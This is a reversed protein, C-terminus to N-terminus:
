NGGEYRERQESDLISVIQEEYRENLETFEPQYRQQLRIREAKWEEVIRALREAQSADLGVEAVFRRVYEDSTEPRDPLAVAPHLVQNLFWSMTGGSLFAFLMGICLWIKLWGIKTM